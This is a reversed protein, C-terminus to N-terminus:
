AGFFGEFKGLVRKLVPFGAYFGVQVLVAEVDEKTVTNGTSTEDAQMLPVKYEVVVIESLLESETALDIDLFTIKDTTVVVNNTLSERYGVYKVSVNYTGPPLPKISYFGDFDTQAGVLSGNVKVTVTAFPLGEGLEPDIVKGQISGGSQAFLGITLFFSCIILLFKKM